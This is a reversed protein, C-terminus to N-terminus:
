DRAGASRDPRAQLAAPWRKDIKELILAADRIACEIMYEKGLNPKDPGDRHTKARL